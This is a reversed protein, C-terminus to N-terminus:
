GKGSWTALEAPDAVAKEVWTFGIERASFRWGDPTRQYTDRYRLPTVVVEGTAERYHRALCYTIGSASDADIECRHNEVAHFTQAFGDNSHLLEALAEHGQVRMFPEGDGPVRGIITGDPTFLAAYGEYDFTDAMWAYEDVLARLAQRDEADQTTM